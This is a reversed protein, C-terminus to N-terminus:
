SPSGGERARNVKRGDARIYTNGYPRGGEVDPRERAEELSEAVLRPQPDHGEERVALEAHAVQLLREAQRLGLHGAVEAM